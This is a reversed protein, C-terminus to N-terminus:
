ISKKTTIVSLRLLPIRSVAKPHGRADLARHSCNNVWSADCGGAVLDPYRYRWPREADDRDSNRAPRRTPPSAAPTM